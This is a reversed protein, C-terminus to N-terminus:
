DLISDILNGLEVIKQNEKENLIKLIQQNIDIIPEPEQQITSNSIELLDNFTYFQYNEPIESLLKISDKQIIYLWRSKTTKYGDDEELYLQEYPHLHLQIPSNKTSPSIYSLIFEKIFYKESEIDYCRPTLWDFFTDLKEPELIIPYEGIFQKNM